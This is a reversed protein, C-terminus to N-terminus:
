EIFKLYINEFLSDLSKKLYPFKYFEPNSEIINDKFVIKILGESSKNLALIDSLKHYSCDFSDDDLVFYVLLNEKIYILRNLTNEKAPEFYYDLDYNLHKVLETHLEGHFNTKKSSSLVKWVEEKKM